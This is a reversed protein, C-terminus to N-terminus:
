RSNAPPEPAPGSRVPPLSYGFLRGFKSQALLLRKLGEKAAAWEGQLHAIVEPGGACCALSANFVRDLEVLVRGGAVAEEAMEEVTVAEGVSIGSM